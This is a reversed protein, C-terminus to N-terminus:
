DLPLCRCPEVTATPVVMAAALPVGAPRGGPVALLGNECRVLLNRAKTVERVKTICVDILGWIKLLKLNSGRTGDYFM